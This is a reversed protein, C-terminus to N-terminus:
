RAAVSRLSTPPLTVQAGGVTKTREEGAPNLLIVEGSPLLTAYVGDWDADVERASRKTPDLASLNYVADRVLESFTRNAQKDQDSGAWVIVWGKGRPAAWAAPEGAATTALLRARDALPGAWGDSTSQL